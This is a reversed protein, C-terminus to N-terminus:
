PYSDYQSKREDPKLKSLQTAEYLPMSGDKVREVLEPADRQIRKADSVYHANTGVIVAAQQRSRTADADKQKGTDAPPQPFNEVVAVKGGTYQNGHDGGAERQREKAEVAL